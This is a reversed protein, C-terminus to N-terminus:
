KNKLATNKGHLTVAGKNGTGGCGSQARSLDDDTPHELQAFVAYSQGKDCFSIMYGPSQLPDEVIPQPLYGRNYLVRTIAIPYSSKNEYAVYMPGDGGAGGTVYYTGYDKYYRELAVQIQALDAQRRADRAEAKAHGFVAAVMGVIMTLGAVIVLLETFTFGAQQSTKM